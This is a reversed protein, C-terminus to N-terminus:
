DDEGRKRKKEDKGRKRKNEDEGRKRESVMPKFLTEFRTRLEM